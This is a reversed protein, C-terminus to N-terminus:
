AHIRRIPARDPEVFAQAKAYASGWDGAGSAWPSPFYEPGLQFSKSGAITVPNSSSAGPYVTGPFQVRTLVQM